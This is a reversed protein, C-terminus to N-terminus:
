VCMLDEYNKNEAVAQDTLTSAKIQTDWNQKQWWISSFINM